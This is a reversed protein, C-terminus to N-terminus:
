ASYLMFLASPPFGSQGRERKKSFSFGEGTHVGVGEIGLIGLESRSKGNVRWICAM